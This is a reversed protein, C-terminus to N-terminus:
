SKRDSRHGISSPTGAAAGRGAPQCGSGGKSGTDVAVDLLMYKRFIETNRARVGYQFRAASPDWGSTEM